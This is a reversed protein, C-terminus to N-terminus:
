PPTAPQCLYIDYRTKRSEVSVSPRRGLLWAARKPRKVVVRRVATALAIEFLRGSDRDPGLLRQLTQMEKKVLVTDKGAPYMPDLYIVEPRQEPALEALWDAADTPQLTMRRAIAAVESDLLARRLGDGILAALVPSRECLTVESGLSALVFADRALGATADLIRPSRGRQMGVARALPQGRGGGFRRRHGLAGGVFDVYVPGQRSCRAELQLRQPTLVLRWDASPQAACTPLGYRRALRDLEPEQGPQAHLCVAQRPATEM